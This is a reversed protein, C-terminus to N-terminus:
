TQLFITLDELRTIAMAVQFGKDKSEENNEKTTIMAINTVKRSRPLDFRNKREMTSDRRKYQRMNGGLILIKIEKKLHIFDDNNQTHCKHFM